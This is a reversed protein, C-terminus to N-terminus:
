YKYNDLYSLQINLTDHVCHLGMEAGTIVHGERAYDVKKRIIIYQHISEYM